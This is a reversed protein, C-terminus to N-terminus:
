PELRLSGSGVHLDALRSDSGIGAMIEPTELDRVREKLVELSKVDAKGTAADTEAVLVRGLYEERSWGFRRAKWRDCNCCGQSRQSDVHRDRDHRSSM